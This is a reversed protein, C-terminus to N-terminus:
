GKIMQGGVGGGGIIRVGCRVAVCLCVAVYQVM